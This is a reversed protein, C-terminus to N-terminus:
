GDLDVFRTRFNLTAQASLTSTTNSGVLVVYLAGKLIDGVDGTGSEMAKYECPKMRLDVMDDVFMGSSELLNDAPLAAPVGGFLIIDMRRMIRFRSLNAALNLANPDAAELIETVNPMTSLNNNSSSEADYVILIALKNAIATAGGTIGGRIFCNKWAIKRGLRESLGTGNKVTALLAIAGTSTIDGTWKLDVFGSAKGRGRKQQQYSPNKSPAWEARKKSKTKKKRIKKLASEM